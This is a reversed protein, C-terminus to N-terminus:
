PTGQGWTLKSMIQRHKHLRDAWGLPLKGVNKVDILWSEARKQEVAQWQWSPGCTLNGGVLRFSSNHTFIGDVLNAAHAQGSTFTKAM